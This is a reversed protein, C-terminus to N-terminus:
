AFITTLLSHSLCKLLALDHNMTIMLTKKKKQPVDVVVKQVIPIDNPYIYYVCMYIYIIIYIYIYIIIYIYIYIYSRVVIPIAKPLGVHNAPVDAM